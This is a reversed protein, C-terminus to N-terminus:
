QVVLTALASIVVLRALGSLVVSGVPPRRRWRMNPLRLMSVFM